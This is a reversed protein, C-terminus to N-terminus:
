NEYKLDQITDTMIIAYALKKLVIDNLKRCLVHRWSQAFDRMIQGLFAKLRPHPVIAPNWYPCGLVKEGTAAETQCQVEFDYMTLTWERAIGLSVSWSHHRNELLLVDKDLNFIWLSEYLYGCLNVSHVNHWVPSIMQGRQLGVFLDLQALM